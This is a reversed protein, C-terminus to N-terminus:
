LIMREMNKLAAARYCGEFTLVCVFIDQKVGTACFHLLVLLLPSFFDWFVNGNILFTM